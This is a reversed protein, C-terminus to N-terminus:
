VQRYKNKKQRQYQCLISDKRYHYVHQYISNEIVKLIEDGSLKSDTVCHTGTKATIQTYNTLVNSIQKLSSSKNILNIQM